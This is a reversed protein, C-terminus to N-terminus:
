PLYEPTMTEPTMFFTYKKHCQLFRDYYTLSAPCVVDYYTLNKKKLSKEIKGNEKGNL